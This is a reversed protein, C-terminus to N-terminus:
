CLTLYDVIIVFNCINIFVVDTIDKEDDLRHMILMKFEIEKM